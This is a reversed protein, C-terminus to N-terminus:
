FPNEHTLFLLAVIVVVPAAAMLTQAVGRLRPGPRGAPLLWRAGAQGAVLVALFVLLALWDVRQTILAVTDIIALLGGGAGLVATAGPRAPALLTLGACVALGAALGLCLGVSTSSGGFLAIPAFAAPLVALLGWAVLPGRDAVMDATTGDGADALAAVRWLVGAGGLVLAALEALLVDSPEALRPWGIWLAIPLPALLLVGRTLRPRAFVDLALGALTAVMAVYFVKNTSGVPPFDPIKNYTLYYGVVFTAPAALSALLASRVGRAVGGVAAAVLLCAAITLTFPSDLLDQM